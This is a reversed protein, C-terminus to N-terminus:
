REDCPSDEPWARASTSRPRLARPRGPQTCRRAMASAHSSSARKLYQPPSLHSRSVLSLRPAGRVLRYKQLHSAVNERTLGQVGMLELIRKPVAKDVGLVNVAEVFRGHLEMAWVVRAKKGGGGSPAEEPEEDEEGDAAAKSRKEKGVRAGGGSGRGRGEPPQEVARDRRIVHQWIYRLDSMQIPKQLYDVAGHLMGKLVASTEGDASM